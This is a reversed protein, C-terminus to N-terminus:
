LRIRELNNIADVLAEVSAVTIDDSSSRANAEVGEADSIGVTVNGVADSGGSIADIHFETIDFEEDGVLSSVAKM